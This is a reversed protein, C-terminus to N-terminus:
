VAKIGNTNSSDVNGGDTNRGLYGGNTANVVADGQNAERDVLKVLLAEYIEYEYRSSLVFGNYSKSPSGLHSTM